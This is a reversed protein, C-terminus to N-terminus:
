NSRPGSPGAPECAGGSVPPLVALEDGDHLEVAPAAALDAAPEDGNLWVRATALVAAFGDGYRTVAEALAREITAGPPLEFEDRPRGAAERATAFLVVRVIV